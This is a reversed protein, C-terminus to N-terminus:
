TEVEDLARNVFRWQTQSHYPPNLLIYFPKGPSWSTSLMLGDDQADYVVQSLCLAVLPRWVVGFGQARLVACFPM